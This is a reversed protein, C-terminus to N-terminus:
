LKREISVLVDHISFLLIWSECIIRWVLNGISLIGIGILIQDGSGSGKLSKVIVIIGYVSLGLAGLVYIIQILTRSVMTRFSLFGGFEMDEAVSNSPDSTLEPPSPNGRQLRSKCIPCFLEGGLRSDEETYTEDCEPCFYKKDDDM